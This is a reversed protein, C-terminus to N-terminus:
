YSHGQLSAEEQKVSSYSFSQAAAVPPLPVPRPLFFFTCLPTAGSFSFYPLPSVFHSPNLAGTMRSPSSSTFSLSSFSHSPNPLPLVVHNLLPQLPRIHGPLFAPWGSRGSLPQYVSSTLRQFKDITCLTLTLKLVCSTFPLM